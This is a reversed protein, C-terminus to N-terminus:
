VWAVLRLTVLAVHEEESVIATGNPAAPVTQASASTRVAYILNRLYDFSATWSSATVYEVVVRVHGDVEGMRAQVLRSTDMGDELTKPDEDRLPNSLDPTAWSLDLITQAPLSYSEPFPNYLLRLADFVRAVLSDEVSGSLLRSSKGSGFAYDHRGHRSRMTGRGGEGDGGGGGIVSAWHTSCCDAMLGLIYLESLVVHPPNALLTQSPQALDELLAVLCDLVANISSISIKVLTSRTGAVIDDHALDTGSTGSRHPLQFSV